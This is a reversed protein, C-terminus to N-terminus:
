RLVGHVQKQLGAGVGGVRGGGFMMNSTMAKKGEWIKVVGDNLNDFFLFSFLEIIQM